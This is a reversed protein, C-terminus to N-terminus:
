ENYIRWIDASAYIPIGYQRAKNAKGSMSDSDAAIVATTKKSVGDTTLIGFNALLNAITSKDPNMSGTLCVLAGETLPRKLNGSKTHIAQEVDIESVGLVRGAERLLSIEAETLLGDAWVLTFLEEFYQQHVNKLDSIGLGVFKAVDLLGQVEADTVVGDSLARSLADVYESTERGFGNEPLSEVLVKVLSTSSREAQEPRCTNEFVGSFGLDPWPQGFVEYNFAELLGSKSQMIERLLQATAQTDSLASHANENHIGFRECLAALSNGNQGRVFDKALRMTDLWAEEMIEVRHGLRAFEAIIFNRDFSVNHGVITRGSLVMTLTPAIEAFTPASILWGPKIGHIDTRGVDRNANVLWTFEQEFALEDDLLVVAIEIIRDNTAFNFGTTETDLVAFGM